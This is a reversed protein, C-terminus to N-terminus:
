TVSSSTFTTEWHVEGIVQFVKNSTLM